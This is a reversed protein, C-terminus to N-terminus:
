RFAEYLENNGSRGSAFMIHRLDVSLTPDFSPRGLEALVAFSAFTEDVSNRTSWRIEEAVAKNTAWFIQLGRAALFPDWDDDPSNVIGPLLTPAGWPESRNSRKSIYIDGQASGGAESGPAPRNSVFLMVLEAEDVAPATDEFPSNLEPVRAPPNWPDQRSPRTSVWIDVGNGTDDRSSAFWIILGDLSVAPNHDANPSSLEEVRTPPDWLLNKGARRSTWIDQNVMERDSMFFLELEDETFTPDQDEATPASLPGSTTAVLVPEGFPGSGILEGAETSVETLADLAHGPTDLHSDRADLLEGSDDSTADPTVQSSSRGILPVMTEGCGAVSSTAPAFALVAEGAVVLSLGARRFDKVLSIM